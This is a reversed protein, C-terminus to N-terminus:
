FQALFGTSPPIPLAYIVDETRQHYYTLGLGLRRELMGLDAGVEWEKAREPRISEKGKNRDTLFGGFGFATSNHFVDWFPNNFRSTVFANQTSYVPPERGTEGYAAHMKGYSLWRPMSARSKSFDWATSLKPYWHRKRGKSFVSSGDNRLGATFYLQDWVDVQAQAFYSEVRLTEEREQSTHDATSAIQDFGAVAIGDGQASFEQYRRENRNHGLMLIVKGSAGHLQRSATAVLDADSERTTFEDRVVRGDSWLSNGLPFVTRRGDSSYDRGWRYRVNLWTSLDYDLTVNGFYRDVEAFNTHANAVFFPNDFGRGRGEMAQIDVSSVTM